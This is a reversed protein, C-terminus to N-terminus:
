RRRYCRRRTPRSRAASSSCPCQGSRRIAGRPACGNGSRPRRSGSVERGFAAGAPSGLYDQRGGGADGAGRRRHSLGPRLGPHRSRPDSGRRRLRPVRHRQGPRSAGGLQRSRFEADRRPERAHRYHRPLVANVNVGSDKLEASLSQTLALVAAKTAGYVGNGAEGQLAARASVNVIAGGGGAATLVRAAARCVTFTTRLNLDLLHELTADDADAVRTWSYGGALNVVARLSDPAVREFLASVEGARRLDCRLLEVREAQVAFRERFPAVEAEVVYTALVRAGAELFGQVVAGGLAGTGGTVIVTGGGFDIRM